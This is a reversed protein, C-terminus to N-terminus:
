LGRVSVEKFYVHTEKGRAYDDHNQLGIYGTRPRAGREPEFDKTRAPVPQAPNFDNIQVGNLNVIIREGKLTIDMTNWEGPPKASDLSTSKALSYIAGTRHYEDTNDLIQVEYGRHVAFWEDVPKDAIRVFVGANSDPDTTKYVVRIECDGFKEGTYWLLGMGGETRLLNGEVVFEGQGVHQWGDMNRSNFLQRRSASSNANGTSPQVQPRAVSQKQAQQVQCATLSALVVFLLVSKSKLM